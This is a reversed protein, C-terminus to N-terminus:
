SDPEMLDAIYIDDEGIDYLVTLTRMFKEAEDETKFPGYFGPGDDGSHWVIIKM